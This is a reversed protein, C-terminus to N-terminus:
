PRSYAPTTLLYDILLRGMVEAGRGNLHDSDSFMSVDFPGANLLNYDIHTIGYKETVKTMEQTFLAYNKSLSLSYEPFPATVIVLNINNDECLAIIRDLYAMQAESAGKYVYGNLLNDNILSNESVVHNSYVYGKDKYYETQVAKEHKTVDTLWSILHRRYRLIKLSYVFKDKVSFVDRWFETKVPSPRMYDYAYINQDIYHDNKFIVFNVELVATSPTHHQLVDELIYYSTDLMQASSGMNFARTGLATEFQAPDLSRYMHSSGLFLLDISDDPLANYEAYRQYPYFDPAQIDQDYMAELMEGFGLVLLAFLLVFLLVQRARKAKSSSTFLNLRM